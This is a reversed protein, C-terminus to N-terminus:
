DDPLGLDSRFKPMQIAARTSHRKGETGLRAIRQDAATAFATGPFREVIRRLTAAALEMDAAHQVAYNAKLNLWRSTDRPSSACQALAGDLLEMALEVRGEEVYLKALAERAEADEPHRGLHAEMREAESVGAVEASPTSMAGPLHSIRQAARRAHETGPLWDRINELAQRAAGQDKSYKLHWDAVQTLAYARHNPPRDGAGGIREMMAVGRQFEGLNTVLIEAKLCEGDFDDPFEELQEDVAELARQYDGRLRHSQAISYLAKKEPPVNGGDMGGSFWGGIKNGINPTWMLSMVVAYPLVLFPGFPGLLPFLLLVVGLFFVSILWKVVLVPAADVSNQLWRRLIWGGCTLCILLIGVAFLITSAREM